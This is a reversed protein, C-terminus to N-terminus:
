HCHSGTTKPPATIIISTRAECCECHRRLNRRLEPPRYACSTDGSGFTNSSCGRIGLALSSDHWRHGYPLICPPRPLFACARPLWGSHVVEVATSYNPATNRTTGRSLDGQPIDANIWHVFTFLPLTVVYITFQLLLSCAFKM